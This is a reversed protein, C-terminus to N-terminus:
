VSGAKMSTGILRGHKVRYHTDDVGAQSVGFQLPQCRTFTPVSGIAEAEQKSHIAPAVFRAEARCQPRWTEPTDYPANEEHTLRVNPGDWVCPAQQATRRKPFLKLRHM